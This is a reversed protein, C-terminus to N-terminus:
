IIYRVPIDCFHHQTSMADQRDPTVPNSKIENSTINVKIMQNLNKEKTILIYKTALYKSFWTFIKNRM